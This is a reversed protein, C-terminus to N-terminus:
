QPLTILRCKLALSRAAAHLASINSVLEILESQSLNEWSLTQLADMSLLGDDVLQAFHRLLSATSDQKQGNGM